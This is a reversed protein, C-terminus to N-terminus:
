VVEVPIKMESFVNLVDQSIVECVMLLSPEAIHSFERLFLIKYGQLQGLASTVARPKVEVITPKDGIWGIVDIRLQTLMKVMRQYNEDLPLVLQEGEGVRFDYDVSEFRDPFKLIFRDWILKDEGVM